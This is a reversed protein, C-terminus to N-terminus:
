QPKALDYFGHGLYQLKGRRVLEQWVSEPWEGPPIIVGYRKDPGKSLPGRGLKSEEDLRTLAQRKKFAALADRLVDDGPAAEAPVAGGPSRLQEILESLRAVDRMGVVGTVRSAPQETKQLLKYVQKWEDGARRPDPYTKIAALLEDLKAIITPDCTM